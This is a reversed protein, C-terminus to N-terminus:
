KRFEELLCQSGVEGPNLVLKSEPQIELLSKIASPNLCCVRRSGLHCKRLSNWLSPRFNSFNALATWCTQYYNLLKLLYSLLLGATREPLDKGNLTLVAEGFGPSKGQHSIHQHYAPEEWLGVLDGMDPPAPGYELRDSRSFEQWGSDNIMVAAKIKAERVKWRSWTM